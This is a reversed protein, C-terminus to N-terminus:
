SYLPQLTQEFGLVAWCYHTLSVFQLCMLPIFTHLPEWLEWAETKLCFCIAMFVGGVLWLIVWGLGWRRSEFKCKYTLEFAM